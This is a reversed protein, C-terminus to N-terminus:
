NSAARGWGPQAAQPRLHPVPGAWLVQAEGDTARGAGPAGPTSTDGPVRPTCHPARLRCVLARALFGAEPWPGRSGGLGSRVGWRGAPRVICTAGWAPQAPGEPRRGGVTGGAAGWASAVTWRPGCGEGCGAAGAAHACRSNTARQRGGGSVVCERASVSSVHARGRSRGLPAPCPRPGKIQKLLRFVKEARRGRSGAGRLHGAPRRHRHGRHRRAGALRRLVSPSDAQHGNSGTSGEGRRTCPSLVAM